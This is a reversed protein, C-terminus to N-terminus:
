NLGERVLERERNGPSENTPENASDPPPARPSGWRGTRTARPAAAVGVEALFHRLVEEARDVVRRITAEEHVQTSYEWKILMRDHQIYVGVALPRLRTTTNDLVYGGWGDAKRFTHLQEANDPGFYNFFVDPEPMARM